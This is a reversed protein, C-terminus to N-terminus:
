RPAYVFVDSLMQEPRMSAAIFDDYAAYIMPPSGCGLITFSSVDTIDELVAKHVLGRRGPWQADHESIVPVYNLLAHRQAIKTVWEHLYLDAQRRGGWYLHLPRPCKLALWQELVAKAQSFGTSGTLLLLPGPDTPSKLFVDGYPLDVDLTEGMVLKTVLRQYNGSQPMARVHLELCGDARPACAISYACRVSASLIIELYQGPQYTAHPPSLPRLQLRTVDYNLPTIDAIQYQMNM